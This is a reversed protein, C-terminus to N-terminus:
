VGAPLRLTSVPWYPPLHLSVQANGAIKKRFCHLHLIKEKTYMGGGEGEEEEEGVEEVM